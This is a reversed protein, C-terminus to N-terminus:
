WYVSNCNCWTRNFTVGLSYNEELMRSVNNVAPLLNIELKITIVLSSIQDLAVSGFNGGLTIQLGSGLLGAGNVDYLDTAAVSIVDGVYDGNGPALLLNM